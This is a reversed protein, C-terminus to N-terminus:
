HLGLAPAPPAPGQAPGPTPTEPPCPASADLPCSEGANKGVSDVHVVAHDQPPVSQDKLATSQDQPAVSQDNLVTPRDQPVVPQDHPATSQGNPAVSQEYPAISQGNPAVSQGNPAIFQRNPAVSQGDLPMSPPRCRQLFALIPDKGTITRVEEGEKVMLVPVDNFGLGHLLARNIASDYRPNKKLGAVPVEPVTDLPYFGIQCTVDDNLSAIVEQCHPCAASFYLRAKVAANPRVIEGYSGQQGGSIGSPSAYDLTASAIVVAAFVALGRVFQRGGLCLNLLFVCAFIVLCYACWARTIQLQFAVLVGEMAMAALLAVSAARSWFNHGGRGRKVLQSLVLMVFFFGAGAINFFIPPLLTLNEVVACGGNLCLPNGTKSIYGIQAITLVLGIFAIFAAFRRSAAGSPQNKLIYAM